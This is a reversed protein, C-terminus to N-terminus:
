EGIRIQVRCLSHVGCHRLQLGELHQWHTSSQPDGPVFYNMGVLCCVFVGAYFTSNSLYQQLLLHGCVFHLTFLFVAFLPILFVWRYNYYLYKFNLFKTNYVYREHLQIHTVTCYVNLTQFYIYLFM